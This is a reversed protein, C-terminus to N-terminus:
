YIFAFIIAIAKKRSEAGRCRNAQTAKAQQVLSFRQMMGIFLLSGPIYVNTLCLLEVRHWNRPPRSTNM